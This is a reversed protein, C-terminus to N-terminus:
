KLFLMETPIRERVLERLRLNEPLNNSNGPYGVAIIVVPEYAENIEFKNKVKEIDFGGMIHAQMGMNIAQLALSMNAAGTDYFNHRYPKGTNTLKKTLSIILIPAKSAWVQNSEALCDLIKDFKDQENVTAYIYRWPQNNSSSPAWRAAEFLSIIKKQHPIEEHFARISRRQQIIEAIEIGANDITIM